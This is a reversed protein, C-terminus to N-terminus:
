SYVFIILRKEASLQCKSCSELIVKTGGLGEATGFRRLMVTFLLIADRGALLWREREERGRFTFM